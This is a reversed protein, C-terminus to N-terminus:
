ETLTIFLAAAVDRAEHTVLANSAIVIVREGNAHRNRIDDATIFVRHGAPAMPASTAGGKAVPKNTTALGILTSELEMPDHRYGLGWGDLTRLDRELNDSLSGPGHRMATPMTAPWSTTDAEGGATFCPRAQMLARTMMAAPASDAMGRAIKALTVRIPLLLCVAAAEDVLAEFRAPPLGKFVRTPDGASKGVAAADYRDTYCGALYVNVPAKAAVSEILRMARDHGYEAGTLVFLIPRASPKPAAFAAGGLVSEVIKRVLDRLEQDTM